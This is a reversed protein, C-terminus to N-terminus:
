HKRVENKGPVSTGLELSAGSSLSGQSERRGDNGSFGLAVAFVCQDICVCENMLM